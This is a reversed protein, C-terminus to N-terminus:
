LGGEIINRNPLNTYVENEGVLEFDTDMSMMSVEIMIRDDATLTNGHIKYLALLGSCCWHVM